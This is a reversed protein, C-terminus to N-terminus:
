PKMGSSPAVAMRMSAFRRARSDSTLAPRSRLFGGLLCSLEIPVWLLGCVPKPHVGENLCNEIAVGAANDIRFGESSVTRPEYLNLPPETKSTM